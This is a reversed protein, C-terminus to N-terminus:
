CGYHRHNVANWGGGLCFFDVKALGDGSVAFFPFAHALPIAVGAAAVPAAVRAAELFGAPDVRCSGIASGSTM